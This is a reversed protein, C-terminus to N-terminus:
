SEAPAPPRGQSQLLSSIREVLEASDPFVSVTALVAIGKDYWPVGVIRFTRYSIVVSTLPGAEQELISLGGWVTAGITGARESIRSSHPIEGRVQGLIAGQRNIVSCSMVGPIRAVYRALEAFESSDAVADASEM